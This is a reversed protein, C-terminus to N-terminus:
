RCHISTAIWVGNWTSDELRHLNYGIQQGYGVCSSQRTDLSMQAAESRADAFEALGLTPCLEFQRLPHGHVPTVERFDFCPLDFDAQPIQVRQGSRRAPIAGVGSAKLGLVIATM